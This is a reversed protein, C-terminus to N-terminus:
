SDAYTLFAERIVEQRYCVFCVQVKITPSYEFDPINITATKWEDGQAGNLEWISRTTPSFGAYIKALVALRVIRCLLM